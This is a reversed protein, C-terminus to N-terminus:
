GNNISQSSNIGNSRYLTAIKYNAEETPHENM